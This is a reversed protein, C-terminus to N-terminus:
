GIIVGFDQTYVGGAQGHALVRPPHPSVGIATDRFRGDLINARHGPSAMWAAVIAAPTGQARTGWGINEGVEFGIQSSYIYGAERMRELPTDGRPGVHEFYDAFAMSETHQQAARELRANSQLPSEGHAARERNVLCLTAARVREVNWASPALEVDPCSSGTASGQSLRQQSPGHGGRRGRKARGSGHRTCRKLAPARHSGRFSASHTHRRRSHRRYRGSAACTPLHRTRVHAGVAARTRGHAALAASSGATACLAALAAVLM